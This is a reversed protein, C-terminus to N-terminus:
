VRAGLLDQVVATAGNNIQADPIQQEMLFGMDWGGYEVSVWRNGQRAQLTAYTQWPTGGSRKISLCAEDGIRPVPQLDGECKPKTLNPSDIIEAKLTRYKEGDRGVTQIWRCQTRTGDTSSSGPDPNTTRVKQKTAETVAACAPPLQGGTAPKGGDERADRYVVFVTVAGGLLLLLVLGLSSLGIILGVRPKKRPPPYGFPPGPQGYAPRPQGQWPPGPYHPRTM